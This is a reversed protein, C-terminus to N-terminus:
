IKLTFFDEINWEIYKITLIAFIIIKLYTSSFIILKPKAVFPEVLLVNKVCNMTEFVFRELLNIPQM